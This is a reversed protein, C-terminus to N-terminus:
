ENFTSYFQKRLYLFITYTPFSYYSFMTNECRRKTIILEDNENQIVEILHQATMLDM